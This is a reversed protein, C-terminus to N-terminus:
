VECIRPYKKSALGQMLKNNADISVHCEFVYISLHNLLTIETFQDLITYTARKFLGLLVVM